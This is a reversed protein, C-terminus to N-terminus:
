NRCYFAKKKSVAAFAHFEKGFMAVHQETILAKLHPENRKQLIITMTRHLILSSVKKSRLYAVATWVLKKIKM